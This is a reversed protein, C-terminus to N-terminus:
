LDDRRQNKKGAYTSTQSHCNPCLLTLNKIRNDLNNGNIHELQLVIPKNNWIDQVGCSYCKNDLINERILIQKLYTGDFRKGVVFTEILHNKSNAKRYTNKDIINLKILHEKLSSLNRHNVKVKLSKLTSNFEKKNELFKSRIFEYSNESENYEEILPVKTKKVYTYERKFRPVEEGNLIARAVKYNKGSPKFGVAILFSNISPYPEIEEKTYDRLLKRSM